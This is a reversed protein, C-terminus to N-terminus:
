RAAYRDCVMLYWGSILLLPLKDLGQGQPKIEISAEIKLLRYWKSTMVLVVGEQENAFGWETGTTNMSQWHFKGGKTLELWGDGFFNSRYIAMTDNTGAEMIALYSNLLGVRNFTWNTTTQDTHTFSACATEVTKFYLKGIINKESHLEFRREFSSPQIWNLMNGRHTSLKEM